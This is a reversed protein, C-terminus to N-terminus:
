CRWIREIARGPANVDRSELIEVGDCIRFELSAKGKLSSDSPAISRVTTRGYESDHAKTLSEGVVFVADSEAASSFICPTNWSGVNSTSQELVLVFQQALLNSRNLFHGRGAMYAELRKRLSGAAEGKGCIGVSLHGCRPFIWIYGELDPLFQIDIRTQDGQVYYGLASMTDPPTLRTGVDRLPNRAGTAVICFDANVTGGATELRWGAGQRTMGTVRTKEIQAGAREARELLMNNLDFRSYIVLPDGLKLTVEGANPASLVSETVLRKPTSNEILFPYQNHGKHNLGGGCPKEWALKEDMLVVGLGASALKEAAFAGAPGGGLIAVRKMEKQRRSAPRGAGADQGRSGARGDNRWSSQGSGGLGAARGRAAGDRGRAPECRQPGGGGMQQREAGAPVPDGDAGRRYRQRCVFGDCGGQRWRM